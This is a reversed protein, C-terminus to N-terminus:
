KYKKFRQAYFPPLPKGQRLLTILQNFKKLSYPYSLIALVGLEGVFIIIGGAGIFLPFIGLPSLPGLKESSLILGGLLFTGSSIGLGTLAQRAPMGHRTRKEIFLNALIHTSDNYAQSLIIENKTLKSAARLSDTQASLNGKILIILVMLSMLKKM